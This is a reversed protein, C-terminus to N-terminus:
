IYIYIIYKYIIMQVDRPLDKGGECLQRLDEGFVLNVQLDSSGIQQLDGARQM